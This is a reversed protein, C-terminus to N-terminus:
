SLLAAVDFHLDARGTPSAASCTSLCVSPYAPLCCLVSHGMAGTGQAPSHTQGERPDLQLGPWLETRARSVGPAGSMENGRLRPHFQATQVQSAVLGWGLVAGRFLTPLASAACKLSLFAQSAVKGQM